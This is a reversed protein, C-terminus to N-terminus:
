RTSSSTIRRSPPRPAACTSVVAGLTMRCGAASGESTPTGGGDLGHCLACREHFLQRTEEAIPPGDDRAEESCGATMTMALAFAVLLLGPVTGLAFAFVLAAGKIPSGSPLARTFAAFSLGCPLFGMMMGLIFHQLTAEDIM